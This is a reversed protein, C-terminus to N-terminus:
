IWELNLIELISAAMSLGSDLDDLGEGTEAFEKCADEIMEYLEERSHSGNWKPDVQSVPGLRIPFRDEGCEADYAANFEERPPLEGYTYSHLYM